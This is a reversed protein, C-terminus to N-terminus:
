GAAGRLSKNKLIDSWALSVTALLLIVGLIGKMIHKDIFPLLSTGILVGCLSGIGMVLSILLSEKPLHGLLRYTMAGAAVTPVSAALSITGAEKIPIAFLYILIPIRMEGGAVGLIASIFAIAIGIIAGLFLKWIGQPAFLFHETQTISEFLMWGGVILLYLYITRKIFSTSLKTVYKAGMISGLISAIAIIFVLLVDRVNWEHLTWRRLLSLTVTFLGVLLNIASATKPRQNFLRLLVPLRFEGGGVGILGSATGTIVGFGFILFNQFYLPLSQNKFSTKTDEM